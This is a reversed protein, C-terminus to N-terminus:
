KNVTVKLGYAHVVKSNAPKRTRTSVKRGKTASTGVGSMKLGYIYVDKQAGTAAGSRQGARASSAEIRAVVAARREKNTQKRKASAAAQSLDPNKTGKVANAGETFRGRRDRPHLHERFESAM